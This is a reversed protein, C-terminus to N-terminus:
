GWIQYGCGKPQAKTRYGYKIDARETTAVKLNRENTNIENENVAPQLRRRGYLKMYIM